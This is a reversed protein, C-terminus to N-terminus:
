ATKSEANEKGRLWCTYSCYYKTFKGKKIKYITEIPRVFKKGCHNCIEDKGFVSNLKLSSTM